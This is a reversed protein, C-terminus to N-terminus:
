LKPPVDASTDPITKPEVSKGQMRGAIVLVIGLGLVCAGIILPVFNREGTTVEGIAFPITSAAVLVWGLVQVFAGPLDLKAGCSPCRVSGDEVRQKCSACLEMPM